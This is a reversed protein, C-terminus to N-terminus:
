FSKGTTVKYSPARSRQVSANNHHPTNESHDLVAAPETNRGQGAIDSNNRSVSVDNGCHDVGVNVLGERQASSCQTPARQEMLLIKRESDDADSVPTGADDNQKATVDNEANLILPAITKKRTM